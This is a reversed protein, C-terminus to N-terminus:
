SELSSFDNKKGKKEIDGNKLFYELKDGYKNLYKIMNEQCKENMPNYGYKVLLDKVVKENEKAHARREREREAKKEKQLKAIEEKKRAIKEDITM